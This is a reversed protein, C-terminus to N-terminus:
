AGTSMARTVADVADRPVYLRLKEQKERRHHVLEPHDRLSTAARQSDHTDVFMSGQESERHFFWFPAADYLRYSAADQYGCRNLAADVRQIAEPPNENMYQQLAEGSFRVPKFLERRQEIARRVSKKSEPDRPRFRRRHGLHSRLHKARLPPLRHPRSPEREM